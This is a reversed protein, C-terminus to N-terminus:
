VWSSSGSSTATTPIHDSGDTPPRSAPCSPAPRADKITGEVTGNVAQSQALPPYAAGLAMALGLASDGFWKLIRM